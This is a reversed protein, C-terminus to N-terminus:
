VFGVRSEYHRASDLYTWFGPNSIFSYRRRNDSRTQGKYTEGQEEGHGGENKIPKASGAQRGTGFLSILICSRM